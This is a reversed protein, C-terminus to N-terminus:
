RLNLGSPNERLINSASSMIKSELDPEESKQEELQGAKIDM